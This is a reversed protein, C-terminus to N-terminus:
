FRMVPIRFGLGLGCGAYTPIYGLGSRTFTTSGTTFDLGAYGFSFPAYVYFGSTFDYHLQVGLSWAFAGHAALDPYIGHNKTITPSVRGLTLSALAGLGPKHINVGPFSFKVAFETLNLDAVNFEAQKQGLTALAADYRRYLVDIYLNVNRGVPDPKFGSDPCGVPPLQQARGWAREVEERLATVRGRRKEEASDQCSPPRSVTHKDGFQLIAGLSLAVPASKLSGTPVKGHMVLPPAQEQGSAPAEFRVQDGGPRTYEASPHLYLATPACAPAWLGAALIVFANRKTAISM